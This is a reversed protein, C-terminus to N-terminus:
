FTWTGRGECEGWVRWHPDDEGATCTTVHALETGDLVCSSSFSPLSRNGQDRRVLQRFWMM